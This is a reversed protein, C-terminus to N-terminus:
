QIRTHIHRQYQRLHNRFSILCGIPKLFTRQYVIRVCSYKMVQPLITTQNSYPTWNTLWEISILWYFSLLPKRRFLLKMKKQWRFSENRAILKIKAALFPLFSLKGTNLTVRVRQAWLFVDIVWSCILNEFNGCM